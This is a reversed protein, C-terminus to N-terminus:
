CAPMISKGTRQTERLLQWESSRWGPKAVSRQFYLQGLHLVNKNMLGDRPADQIIAYDHDNFRPYQQQGPQEVEAHKGREETSRQSAGLDACSLLAYEISLLAGM